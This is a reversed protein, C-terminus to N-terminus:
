TERFCDAVSEHPPNPCGAPVLATAHPLSYKTITSPIIRRPEPETTVAHIIENDNITNYGLVVPRCNSDLLSLKKSEPLALLQRVSGHLGEETDTEKIIFSLSVPSLIITKTAVTSKNRRPDAEQEALVHQLVISDDEEQSILPPQYDLMRNRRQKMFKYKEKGKCNANHSKLYQNEIPPKTNKWGYTHFAPSYKSDPSHRDSTSPRKVPQSKKKEKSCISSYEHPSYIQPKSKKHLKDSVATQQTKLQELQASLQQQQRLIEKQQEEIIAQQDSRHSETVRSESFGETESVAPVYASPNYLCGTAKLGGVVRRNKKMQLHEKRFNRNLAPYERDMQTQWRCEEPESVMM